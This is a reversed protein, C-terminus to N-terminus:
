KMWEFVRYHEGSMGLRAYVEQMAPSEGVIHNYRFALPQRHDPQLQSQLSSLELLGAVESAIAELRLQDNLDFRKKNLLQLVGVVPGGLKKVPVVLMARTRYGTIGDTRDDFRPVTDMQAPHEKRPAEWLRSEGHQAVWGAIGDGLRLRIETIEPLHAVQSVLERRAHDLLYLTGRDAGIQQTTHDVVERLAEVLPLQHTTLRRRLDAFWDFDAM